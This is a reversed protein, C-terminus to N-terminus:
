SNIRTKGKVMLSRSLLPASPFRPPLLRPITLSLSSHPHMCTPPPPPPHALLAPYSRKGVESYEVSLTPTCSSSVRICICSYLISELPPQRSCDARSCTLTSTLIALSCNSQTWCSSHCMQIWRCKLNLIFGAELIVMLDIFLRFRLRIDVLVLVISRM